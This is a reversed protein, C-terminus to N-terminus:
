EKELIQTLTNKQLYLPPPFCHILSVAGGVATLASLLLKNASNKKRRLQSGLLIRKESVETSSEYAKKLEDFSTSQILSQMEVKKRGKALQQLKNEFLTVTKYANNWEEQPVPPYLNDVQKNIQIGEHITKGFGIGGLGLLSGGLSMFFTRRSIAANKSREKEM